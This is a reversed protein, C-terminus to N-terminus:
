MIYGILLNLLYLIFLLSLFVIHWWKTMVLYAAFERLFANPLYYKATKAGLGEANLGVKKSFMGTRLLHYNNTSFAIPMGLGDREEIMTRSFKLNEFTTTSQDEMLLFEEPFGAAIADEKMAFAESVEEDDGQGGSMIVMPMKGTARKQLNAFDLGAMIRSHLLPTVKRGGMLGAGCIVVYKKNLKPRNLNYLISSALYCAFQLFFYLLIGNSLAAGMTIIFPMGRFQAVVQLVQLLLLGLGAFLSLRNALSVRERKRVIAANVLLFTILGFYGLAMVSILILIGVGIAVMSILQDSLFRLYVLHFFFGFLFLIFLAGNLASRKEHRWFLYFLLFQGLPIAFLFDNFSISIFISYLMVVSFIYGFLLQACHFRYFARRKSVIAISGAVLLIIVILELM